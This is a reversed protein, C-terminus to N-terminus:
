GGGGGRVARVLRLTVGVGRRRRRVWAPARREPLLAALACALVGLSALLFTADTQEPLCLHLPVSPTPLCASGLLKCAAAVGPIMTELCPACAPPM